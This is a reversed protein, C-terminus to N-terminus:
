SALLDPQRGLIVYSPIMEDPLSRMCYCINEDRLAWDLRHVEATDMALGRLLRLVKATTRRATM